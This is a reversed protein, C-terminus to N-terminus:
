SDRLESEYKRVIENLHTIIVSMPDIVTYGFKQAKEVSSAPIWKAPIGFAPDKTDIGDIDKFIGEQEMILYYSPMIEGTAVEKGKVKVIYSQPNIKLNDMFAFHDIVFGIDAAIKQKLQVIRDIFNSGQKEDILPLLGVGFQVEVPHIQIEPGDVIKNLDEM